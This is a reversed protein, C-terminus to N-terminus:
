IEDRELTPGASRDEVTVRVLGTRGGLAPV